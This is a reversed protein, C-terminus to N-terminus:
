SVVCGGSAAPSAQGIVQCGKMPEIMDAPNYFIQLETIKSESNLTAICTGFLEILRGDGKFVRGDTMTFKGTFKGFHRWKFSVTPPGSWVELCEWAFGETLAESFATNASEFSQDKWNYGPALDQLLLNYPGVDSMVQASGQIGGNVSAKFVSVDMTKWDRIDKIHHSDVEWNKVVKTVLEEASGAAPKKTRGEFYAKNVRAYNPRGFRWKVGVNPEYDRIIEGRTAGTSEPSLKTVQDNVNLEQTMAM